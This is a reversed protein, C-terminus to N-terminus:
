FDVKWVIRNAYYGLYIMGNMLLHRTLFEFAFKFIYDHYVQATRSFELAPFTVNTLFGISYFDLAVTYM